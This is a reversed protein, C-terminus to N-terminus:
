SGDARAASSLTWEDPLKSGKRRNESAPLYQLNDQHHLGGRSIPVKHDVEYGLPCNAYIERIKEQNADSPTQRILKAQYRRVGLLNKLRKREARHEPPSRMRQNATTACRVSCFRPNKHEKGCEECPKAQFRGPVGHRTVGVNMVTALCSRSCFRHQKENLPTGCHGCYGREGLLKKTHGRGAIHIGLKRVRKEIASASMGFHKSLRGYGMGQQYLAILEEANITSQRKGDVMVYKSKPILSSLNSDAM